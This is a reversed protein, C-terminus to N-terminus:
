NVIFFYKNHNTNVKQFFGAHSNQTSVASLDFYKAKDVFFKEGSEKWMLKAAVLHGKQWNLIEIRNGVNKIEINVSVIKKPIYKGPSEFHVEIIM